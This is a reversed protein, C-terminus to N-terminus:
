KPAIFKVPKSAENTTPPLNGNDMLAKDNKVWKVHGDVFAYNSGDFHRQLAAIGDYNGTNELIDYALFMVAGTTKSEKGRNAPNGDQRLSTEAVLCQQSSEVFDALITGAPTLVVIYGTSWTAASNWAPMGYEAAYPDTFINLNKTATLGSSPCRLVEKNKMYAELPAWPKSLGFNGGPTTVDLPVIRGDYDQAYMHWGLALQKLNSQCSARRANERARAFVPFLIAALFAIIAIVVLLEILTFGGRGACKRLGRYTQKMGVEKQFVFQGVIANSRKKCGMM